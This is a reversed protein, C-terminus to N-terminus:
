VENAKGKGTFLNILWKFFTLIKNESKIKEPTTIIAEETEDLIIPESFKLVEEKMWLDVDFCPCAKNAFHYHGKVEVNLHDYKALFIKTLEKMVAKQEPTRTDEPQFTDKNLGGVYCYHRSVANYGAAGYTLEWGDVLDDEDEQIFSHITGDLLILKSYGVRDWGRGQPPKDKHWHIIDEPTVWRGSPTATCHWILYKLQKAM